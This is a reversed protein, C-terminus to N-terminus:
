DDSSIGFVKERRLIDLEFLRRDYLCKAMEPCTTAYREGRVRLSEQGGGVGKYSRFDGYARGNRWYINRDDEDESPERNVPTFAGEYGTRNYEPEFKEIYHSEVNNLRELPVNIYSFSDFKKNTCQMHYSIRAHINNSQGVYVIEEERILFYVGVASVAPRSRSLIEDADVGCEPWEKNLNCKM